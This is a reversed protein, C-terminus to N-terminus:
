NMNGDLVYSDAYVFAITLRVTILVVPTSHWILVKIETQFIGDILRDM